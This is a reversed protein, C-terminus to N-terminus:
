VPAVTVPPHKGPTFYRSHTVRLDDLSAARFLVVEEQDCTTAERHNLAAIAPRAAEFETVRLDGNSNNYVFLFWKM